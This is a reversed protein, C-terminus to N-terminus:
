WACHVLCLTGLVTYWACHVLCLTGLVTFCAGSVRIGAEPGDEEYIRRVFVAGSQDSSALLSSSASFFRM